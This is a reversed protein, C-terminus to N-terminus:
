YVSTEVFECSNLSVMVRKETKLSLANCYLLLFVLRILGRLHINSFHKEQAPYEISTSLSMDGLSLTM